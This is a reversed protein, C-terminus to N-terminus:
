QAILRFRQLEHGINVALNVASGVEAAGTLVYRRGWDGKNVIIVEDGDYFLQWRLYFGDEPNLIVGLSDVEATVVPLGTEGVYLPTQPALTRGPVDSPVIFVFGDEDHVFKWLQEAANGCAQMEIGASLNIGSDTTTYPRVEALCLPTDVVTQIQYIPVSYETNIGAGVYSVEVGDTRTNETANFVAVNGSNALATAAGGLDAKNQYFHTNEGWAQTVWDREVTTAAVVHNLAEGSENIFTNFSIDTDNGKVVILASQEANASLGLGDIVNFKVETSEVGEHIDIAEALVNPGLINTFIRNSMNTPDFVGSPASSWEDAPSGVVIAEAYADYGERTSLGTNSVLSRRLSNYSSGNRLQIGREGVHSVTLGTLENYSAGDLVIGNRGGYTQINNVVWYDGSLRLVDNETQSEGFLIPYAGSSASRLTIPTDATGSRDSYFLADEHGSTDLSATGFYYTPRVVIEDNPEANLLAAQLEDVTEVLVWNTERRGLSLTYYRKNTGNSATVELVREVSDVGDVDIAFPVGALLTQPETVSLIVGTDSLEPVGLTMTAGEVSPSATLQLGSVNQNYAGLYSPILCGFDTQLEAGVIEMASLTTDAALEETTGVARTVTLQYTEEGVGDEARSVLEVLNDGEAVNLEISQFHASERNNITVSTHRENTQAGVTIMCGAYPVEAAYSFVSSNFEPTLALYFVDSADDSNYAQNTAVINLLKASTSVRHVNITYNLRRTNGDESMRLVIINDGEALTKTDVEGPEIENNEGLYNFTSNGNEDLVPDGNEDRELERKAIALKIDENLPSATINISTVDSPVNLAYTGIYDPDFAPVLTGQDIVLSSLRMDTLDSFDTVAGKKRDTDNGCGNLSLLLLVSFAYLFPSTSRLM